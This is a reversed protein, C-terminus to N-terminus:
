LMMLLPAAHAFRSRDLRGGRRACAGAQGGIQALEAQMGAIGDKDVRRQAREAPHAAPRHGDDPRQLVHQGLFPREDHWRV